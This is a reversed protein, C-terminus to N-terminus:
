ELEPLARQRRPRPCPGEAVDPACVFAPPQAPGEGLDRHKGHLQGLVHLLCVGHAGQRSRAASSSSACAYSSSVPPWSDQGAGVVLRAEIGEESLKTVM